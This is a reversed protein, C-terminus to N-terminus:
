GEARTASSLPTLLRAHVSSGDPPASGIGSAIEPTLLESGFDLPEQLEAFYVTGAEIYQPHLRFSRWRM